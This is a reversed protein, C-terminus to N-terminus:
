PILHSRQGRQVRQVAQGLQAGPQGRKGQQGRQGQQGGLGPNDQPGRWLHSHVGDMGGLCSAHCADMM